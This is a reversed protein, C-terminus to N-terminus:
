RAIFDKIFSEVVHVDFPMSIHGLGQVEISFVQPDLTHDAYFGPYDKTHYTEETLAQIINLTM